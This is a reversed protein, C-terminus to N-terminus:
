PSQEGEPDAAFAPAARSPAVPALEPRKAQRGDGSSTGRIRRGIWPGFHERAWRYDERRAARWAARDRPRAAPRSWVIPPPPSAPAGDGRLVPSGPSHLSGSGVGLVEAAREAIRRHSESTLHLRDTSWAEPQTLFRMGWLDVLAASRADAIARLHMNYAAIKGRLLGMLWFARPDFGTFLLVQSGTGCLRAVAADLLEALADPDAGPRLLDNGGGAISALAPSAAGDLLKVAAPVQDSAIQRLLKGRVALNAYRFHPDSAALVEALRDAWGHYGGDPAPDNMGETFSDGLAVFSAIAPTVDTM